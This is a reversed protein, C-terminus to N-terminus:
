CHIYIFLLLTPSSPQLGGSKLPVEVSIAKCHFYHDEQREVQIFGDENQWQLEVRDGRMVVYLQARLTVVFTM